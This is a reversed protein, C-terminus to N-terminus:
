RNAVTGDNEDNDDGESEQILTSGSPPFNSLLLVGMGMMAIAQPLNLLTTEHHLM